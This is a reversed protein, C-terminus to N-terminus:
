VIHVVGLGNRAVHCEGVHGAAACLCAVLAVAVGDDSRSQGFVLNSYVLFRGNTNCLSCIINAAVLGGIDFYYEGTRWGECITEGAIHGVARGVAVTLKSLNLRLCTCAVGNGIEAVALALAVNREGVGINYNAVLRDATGAVCYSQGSAVPVVVRSAGVM